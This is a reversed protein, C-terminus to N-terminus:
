TVKVVVATMDDAPEFGGEYSLAAQFLGDLIETASKQQLSAVVDWVRPLGFLPGDESHHEHIGDTTLLLLQGSILSIPGSTTLANNDIMGLPLGNASLRTVRGDVDFLYAEHGAGSITLSRNKTDISALMGTVFWEDPTDEYIVTNAAELIEGPVSTAAAFTRITRRLSSMILASPFGHRSVDAIVVGLSGDSLTLFDYYDGGVADAPRCYGAIDFGDIVPAMSPFLRQQIKRADTLGSELYRSSTVDIAVGISGLIIDHENRYPEIRIHFTHRDATFDLTTSEGNLAARHANVIEYGQPVIEAFPRGVSQENFAGNGLPCQGIISQICHNTDLYWIGAAVHQVLASLESTVARRQDEGQRRDIAFRISRALNSGNLDAKSLYDTAGAQLAQQDVAADSQGTVLIIPVRCGKTIAERLLQM